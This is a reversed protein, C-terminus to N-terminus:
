YQVPSFQVSTSQLRGLIEDLEVLARGHLEYIWRQSYFMKEAIEAWSDGKFYRGIIVTQYETNEMQGICDLLFVKKQRLKEEDQQIERELDLAKCVADAMKSTTPSPNKPMGTLAPAGCSSAIERLVALREKKSEIFAEMRSLQRLYEKATM